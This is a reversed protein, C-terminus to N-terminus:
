KNAYHERMHAEMANRAENYGASNNEFEVSKGCIYCKMTGKDGCGGTVWEMEEDSTQMESMEQKKNDSM